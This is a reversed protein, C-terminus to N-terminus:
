PLMVVELYSQDAVIQQLTQSIDETRINSLKDQSMINIGMTDYVKIAEHWARNCQQAMDWENRITAKAIDLEEQSPASKALAQVEEKIRNMASKYGQTTADASIILRSEVASILPVIDVDCHIRYAADNRECLQKQYRAQLIQKVCQLALFNKTDAPQEYSTWQMYMMAQPREMTTHLTKSVQGEPVRVQWDASAAVQKTKLCGLWTCILKQLDEDEPHVNGTLYFTFEAPNAFVLQKVEPIKEINMGNITEDNLLTTRPSYNNRIAQLSDNYVISPIHANDQIHNHYRQQLSEYVSTNIPLTQTFWVYTMQLWTSLDENSSNGSIRADENDLRVNWNLDKGNQVEVWDKASFTGIGAMNFYDSMAWASPLYDPQLKNKGGNAIADIQMADQKIPTPKLVVRTGNSLTWTTLGMETNTEEKKIKGGRPAKAVLEINGNPASPVDVKWLPTEDWMFLLTADDLIESAYADSTIFRLRRNEKTIYRQAFQKNILKQLPQQLISKIAKYQNDANMLDGQYVYHNMYRAALERSPISHRERYWEEISADLAKIAFDLEAQSFGVRRLAEAQALLLRYADLVQGKKARVSMCFEKKTLVTSNDYSCTGGEIPSQPDLALQQLRKTVMQVVLQDIVKIMFDRNTGRQSMDLQDHLCALQIELGSIEKDFVRVVNPQPNSECSYIPREVPNTAVPINSFLSKIKGEIEYIDIDGVVFIAQNNPTYWKKYYVMLDQPQYHMLSTSDGMVDHKAYPSHPYSYALLEKQLRKPAQATNAYWEKMIVSQETQMAQPTFRMGCAWDRLILLSSDITNARQVPMQTLAYFSKDLDTEGIWKGGVQQVYQSITNATFHETDYQSMREIFHTIGSQNDEELIAGVKNLLVFEARHRPMENHRIYYTLGNDLKGYLITSDLPLKAPRNPQVPQAQLCGVSFLFAMLTYTIKKMSIKKNFTHNTQKTLLGNLQPIHEKKVM